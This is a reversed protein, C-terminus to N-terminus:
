STKLNSIMNNLYKQCIVLLNLNKNVDFNNNNKSEMISAVTDEFQHFTENFAIINKVLNQYDINEM